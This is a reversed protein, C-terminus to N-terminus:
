EAAVEPNVYAPANIAEEATDYGPVSPALVAQKALELADLEAKMMETTMGAAPDAMKALLADKGKKYATNQATWNSVGEKCMSNLGSATNIKTGFEQEGPKFWKGFYGCHAAVVAGAEDKVFSVKSTGGGGQKAECAAKIEDLVDRVRKDSNAVLITIIPQFMKKIAKSM